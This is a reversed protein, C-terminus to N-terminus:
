LGPFNRKLARETPVISLCLAICEVSCLICSMIGMTRETSHYFPIQVLLSAVLMIWGIKWWLRGCYTQAFQWTDRNKMSRRTRYGYLNNINKPPHKWLVRGMCIMAVPILLDCVFLFWWFWM